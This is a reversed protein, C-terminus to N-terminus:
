LLVCLRLIRLFGGVIQSSFVFHLLFAVFVSIRLDSLDQYGGVTPLDQGVNRERHASVPAAAQGIGFM